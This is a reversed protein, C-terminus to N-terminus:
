EYGDVSTLDTLTNTEINWVGGVPANIKPSPEYVSSTTYVFITRGGNGDEGKEGQPGQPGTAGAPGQPGQPGPSGTGAPGAPGAPGQVGKTGKMNVPNSWETSRQGTLDFVAFSM